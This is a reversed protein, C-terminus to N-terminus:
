EDKPPYGPHDIMATHDGRVIPLYRPKWFRSRLYTDLDRGALDTRGAVGEKLAQEIVRSGVRISVERLERVPPYIRGAKLHAAATYDALAYAAELVMADTVERCEALITGFGLGPFIFANNGQGVPYLQGDREVDPFPSGAAVIARGESWDLIDEPLAECASTPNSLPFIIPRATNRAMAQVVPHNFAGTQGSLGLLATAKTNEITELLTPIDNAIRWDAIHTRPQVFAQKYAEVNRGEVLLGRSDLVCVRDRAEEPNLGERLLGQTIAWAVGIGGAGAGLIVIRQDRLAEGKLRSASLLGALAVAGTGQIDDNFSPLRKRYRELITFAVDKSLDEWQIVARPWREHIAKVFKDLFSLYREGRLRRQRVGLYFEDNLLELRDTGVDLKVPMTHFPDVGGGITYIALKGIAIALGGYGQDGIGLIASSDTAVIMRVDNWPFNRVVGAARDINLPSFSLGRPNQYLHSFQQVAQGVTPTYIIPMMEELHRELLAYFLTEAREQLARLYQYKAIPDPERLFGRYVREVQQELTNVQPPLLGDLGLAVREDETFATGKNSLVLRLLAIGELYVEMYEHGEADTKIDFYPSIPDRKM